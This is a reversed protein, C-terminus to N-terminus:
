SQLMKIVEDTLNKRYIRIFSNQVFFALDIVM